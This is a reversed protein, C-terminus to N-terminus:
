SKQPTMLSGCGIFDKDSSKPQLSELALIDECVGELIEALLEKGKAKRLCHLLPGTVSTKYLNNYIIQYARARQQM